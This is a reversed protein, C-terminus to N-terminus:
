RSSSIFLAFLGDKLQPQYEHDKSFRHKFRNNHINPQHTRSKSGYCYRKAQVRPQHHVLIDNKSIILKYRKYGTSLYVKWGLLLWYLLMIDIKM